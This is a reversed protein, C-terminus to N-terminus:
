VIKGERELKDKCDSCIEFADSTSEHVVGYKSLYDKCFQCRNVGAEVSYKILYKDEVMPLYDCYYCDYYTCLKEHSYEEHPETEPVQTCSNTKHGFSNCLKCHLKPCDQKTHGPKKCYNCRVNSLISQKTKQFKICANMKHGSQRCFFCTINNM